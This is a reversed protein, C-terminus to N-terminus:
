KTIYVEKDSLYESFQVDVSAKPFLFRSKSAGEDGGEDGGGM